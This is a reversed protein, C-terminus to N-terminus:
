DKSYFFPDFIDNLSKHPKLKEKDDWFKQGLSKRHRIEVRTPVKELDERTEKDFIKEVKDLLLSKKTPYYSLADEDLEVADKFPLERGESILRAQRRDPEWHASLPLINFVEYEVRCKLREPKKADFRNKKLITLNNKALILGFGLILPIAFGSFIQAVLAYYKLSKLNETLSLALSDFMLMEM